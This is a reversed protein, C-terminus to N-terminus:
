TARMHLGIVLWKDEVLRLNLKHPLSRLRLWRVLLNKEELLLLYRCLFVRIQDHADVVAVSRIMLDRLPFAELISCASSTYAIPALLVIMSVSNFILLDRM